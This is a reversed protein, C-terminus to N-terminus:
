NNKIEMAKEVPMELVYIYFHLSEELRALAQDTIVVEM